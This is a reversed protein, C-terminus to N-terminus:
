DQAVVKITNNEKPKRLQFNDDLELEFALPKSRDEEEIEKLQAKKNPKEPQKERKDTIIKTSFM